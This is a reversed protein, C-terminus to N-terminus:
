FHRGVPKFERLPSEVKKDELSEGKFRLVSPCDGFAKMLDGTGCELDALAGKIRSEM